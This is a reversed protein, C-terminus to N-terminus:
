KPKNIKRKDLVYGCNLCSFYDRSEATRKSSCIPCKKKKM